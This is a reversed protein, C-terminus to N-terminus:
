DETAVRPQRLSMWGGLLAGTCLVAWGSTRPGELGVTAAGVVTLAVAVAMRVPGVDAGATRSPSRLRRQVFTALAVLAGTVGLVVGVWLPRTWWFDASLRTPVPVGAAIVAACLALASLHLAYVGVAATGARRWLGPWRQALRDLASAGVMLVGVQTVAVVATYLTPPTSNSRRSSVVDILSPAYGGRHVLLLAGALGVVMLAAGVRREAFAGRECRARWWAGLVWPLGWVLFFGPWGVLSSWGMGFRALDTVAVVVLVAATTALPHQALRDVLPGAVLLPVYAALFWFPQTAIRAGDGVVGPDGLAAVTVVVLTSWAAVVVAAFGVLAGLRPVVDRWRSGRNAWGAAAFFVPMPSLVGLWSWGPRLALLNAGRLEGDPGRDIVAMLLHGLVVVGLAGIRAVDIAGRRATPGDHSSGAPAVRPAPEDSV